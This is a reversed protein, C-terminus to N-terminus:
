FLGLLFRVPPRRDVRSYQNHLVQRGPIYRLHQVTYVMLKWVSLWICLRFYSMQTSVYNMDVRELTQYFNGLLSVFILVLWWNIVVKIWLVLRLHLQELLLRFYSHIWIFNSRKQRVELCCSVNSICITLQSSGPIEGANLSPLLEIPWRPCSPWLYTQTTLILLSQDFTPWFQDPHTFSLDHHDSHVFIPWFQDPHTFSLDPM